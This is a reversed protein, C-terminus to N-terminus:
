STKNFGVISKTLDRRSYSPSWPDKPITIKPSPDNIHVQFSFPVGIHSHWEKRDARDHLFKELTCVIELSLTTPLDIACSKV